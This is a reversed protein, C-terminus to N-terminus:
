RNLKKIEETWHELNLEKPDAGAHYQWFKINFSDISLISMYTDILQYITFEQITDFNIFSKGGFQVIRVMDAITHADKEQKIRRGEMIKNYIDKKRKSKFKPEPKIEKRETFNIKLIMDAIDDFNTRDILGNNEVLIYNIQSLVDDDYGFDVKFEDRLQIGNLKYTKEKFYFCLSELLIDLYPVDDDRLLMTKKDADPIFFLDFNSIQDFINGSLGVLNKTIFYPKLLQNYKDEGVSIIDKIMPVKIIFDGVEIDKAFRLQLSNM